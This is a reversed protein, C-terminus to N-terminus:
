QVTQPPKSMEPRKGYTGDDPVENFRLYFAATAGKFVLNLVAALGTLVVETSTALTETPMRQLLLLAAFPPVLVYPISTPWQTRITRFNIKLAEVPDRTTYAIAPTAFTLSIDLLIAAIGHAIIADVNSSGTTTPFLIYLPILPLSGLFGLALYSGFFSLSIRPIDRLPM